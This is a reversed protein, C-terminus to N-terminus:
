KAEGTEANVIIESDDQFEITYFVSNAKAELKWEEIGTKGSTVLAAEMAQKPSIIKLFDISFKEELDRGEVESKVVTGDEAKIAFDYDNKDDFGEITYVLIHDESKLALEKISIKEDGFTDFFAGKAEDLSIFTETNELTLGTTNNKNDLKSDTKEAEQKMKDEKNENTTETAVVEDDDDIKKVVSEPSCAALLLMFASVAVLIKIKKM